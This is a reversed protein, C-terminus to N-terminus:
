MRGDRSLAKAMLEPYYRYKRHLEQHHQPCLWVVELPKTYDPHHMQSGPDGCLRCPQRELRGRQRYVNAYSRANDKVRQAATLPHGKRWARM